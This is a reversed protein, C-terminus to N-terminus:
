LVKKMQQGENYAAQAKAKLLKATEPGLQNVMMSLHSSNNQLLTHASDFELARGSEMVLIRDYDIITHLRHAICIVFSERFALRM